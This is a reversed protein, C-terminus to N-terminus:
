VEENLIFKEWKKRFQEKEEKTYFHDMQWNDRYQSDLLRAPIRIKKKLEKYIYGSFKEDGINLDQLKLDPRGVFERIVDFNDKLKELKLVLVEINREKIWAYGREKDFPYKYVDVGTVEKLEKDFWMFEENEDLSKIMWKRAGLEIDYDTEAEIFRERFKEMYHALSRSIPERVLTIIKLEGDARWKKVLCAGIEDVMEIGCTPALTHVHVSDINAALLSYCVTKSGVKGVQYVLIPHPYQNIHSYHLGNSMCKSLKRWIEKRQVFEERFDDSFHENKINLEIGAQLGYWTCVYANIKRADLEEIMEECFDRSSVVIMCDESTAKEQLDELTIVRHNCFEKKSEDRDCFCDFSVGADKLLQASRRGWCGAGYLVVVKEFMKDINYILDYDKIEM